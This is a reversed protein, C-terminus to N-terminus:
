EEKRVLFRKITTKQEAENKIMIFYMGDSLDKISIQHRSVSNPILGKKISKGTQDYMRWLLDTLTPHSFKLIFHHDSIPNPYLITVDSFHNDIGTSWRNYASNHSDSIKAQHVNRTEDFNQIFVVVQLKNNGANLGSVRWKATVARVENGDIWEGQQM